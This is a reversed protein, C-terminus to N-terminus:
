SEGRHQLAEARTKMEAHARRETDPDFDEGMQPWDAAHRRVINALADIHAPDDNLAPIYRLEEGGHQRFVDRYQIAIEELTELCDASFGPCIVDVKKVGREALAILTADTYPRLWQKPGFRSQFSVTSQESSLELRECLLRATAQCQCFYPDGADFCAQPIGHFSLLLHQADGHERWHRRVSAALAAIYGDDAHYGSVFRLEPVWRWRRMEAALADFSSGVTAAAYQPYAPLVLLRQVNAARLARLATAISPSGYRMGLAVEILPSYQDRLRSELAARQANSISLLPSGDKGWIERYANASRRPRFPLIIGYLIPLWAAPALEVVRRDSLFERLYSRVSGSDPAAPTGLNCLLVGLRDPEAHDFSNRATFPGM